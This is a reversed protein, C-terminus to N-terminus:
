ETSITLPNFPNQPKHTTLTHHYKNSYHSLSFSFAKLSIEQPTIHWGQAVAEPKLQGNTGIVDNANFDAQGCRGISQGTILMDLLFRPNEYDAHGPAELLPMYKLLLVPYKITDVQFTFEIREAQDNSDWNGLRISALEGDPVTKAKGGTRPETEQRDFHVVHRSGMSSPGFDVAKVTKFDDFTLTNNPSSNNIYCVANNLNLYDVCMEEPYYILKGL